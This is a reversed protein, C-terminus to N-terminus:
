CNGRLHGKSIKWM